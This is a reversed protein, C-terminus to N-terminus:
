DKLTDAELGEGLRSLVLSWQSPQNGQPHNKVREDGMVGLFFLLSGFFKLSSM